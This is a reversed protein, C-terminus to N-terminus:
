IPRLSHILDITENTKNGKPKFERLHVQLLSEFNTDGMTKFAIWIQSSKVAMKIPTVSGRRMLLISTVNSPDHGIGVSFLDHVEELNFNVFSLLVSADESANVLWHCIIEYPFDDPHKPSTVTHSDVRSLDIETPGCHEIFTTCNIFIKIRTTLIIIIKYIKFFFM